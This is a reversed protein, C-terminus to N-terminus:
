VKSGKAAQTDYVIELRTKSAADPPLVRCLVRKGPEILLSRSDCKEAATGQLEAFQAGSDADARLTRDDAFWLKALPSGKSPVPDPDPVDKGPIGTVPKAATAAGAPKSTDVLEVIGDPQRSVSWTAGKILPSLTQEDPGITIRLSGPITEIKPAVVTAAVPQLPRQVGSRKGLVMFLIIGIVLLALLPWVWWPIGGKEVVKVVPPTPTPNVQATSPPRVENPLKEAAPPADGEPQWTNRAFTPYRPSNPPNPLSSLKEPFLATVYVTKKGKDSDFAFQARTPEGWHGSVLADKLQSNNAGFLRDSGNTPSQSNNSNTLLLIVTSGIENPPISKITEFLAREIDHGGNSKAFPADPVGDVFSGRTKPDDTLLSSKGIVENKMEWAFPTIKDVAALSNNMIGFALRTMAIATVPDSGYGGTSFGIYFSYRDKSWDGGSKEVQEKLWNAIDARPVSTIESYKHIDPQQARVVFAAFVCAM